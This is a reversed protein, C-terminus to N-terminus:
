AFVGKYRLYRRQPTLIKQQPPLIKQQPPIIKRQSPIIKRQPPLIKRKGGFILAIDSGVFNQMTIEMSIGLLLFICFCM